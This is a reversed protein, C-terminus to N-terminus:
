SYIIYKDRSPSFFVLFFFRRAFKVNTTFRLSARVFSFRICMCRFIVEYRVVHFSSYFRRSKKKGAHHYFRLHSFRSESFFSFYTFSSFIYTSTPIYKPITCRRVLERLEGILGTYRGTERNLGGTESNPPIELIYNFKLMKSLEDLLDKCFGRYRDNGVSDTDNM